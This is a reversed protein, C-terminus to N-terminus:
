NQIQKLNVKRLNYPPGNNFKIPYGPIVIIQARINPGHLKILQDM